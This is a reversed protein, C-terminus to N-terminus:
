THDCCECRMCKRYSPILTPSDTPVQRASRQGGVKYNEDLKAKVNAKVKTLKSGSFYFGLLLVGTHSYFVTLWDM